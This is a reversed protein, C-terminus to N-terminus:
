VVTLQIQFAGYTRGTGVTEAIDKALRSLTRDDDLSEIASRLSLNLPAFDGANGDRLAKATTYFSVTGNVRVLMKQSGKLKRNM